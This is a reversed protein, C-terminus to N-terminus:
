RKIMVTGTWVNQGGKMNPANLKVLYYYTGDPLKGSKGNGGWDNKYNTKEYVMDGWKDFVQVTNNPYVGLGEIVWTDNFGDGNPTVVDHIIISNCTDENVTASYSKTCGNSDSVTVSYTGSVLGTIEKGTKNNSWLYTYPANGGTVTASISGTGADCLDNKTIATIQLSDPQKIHFYLVELCQTIEAKISVTDYGPPLGTITAGSVGNNWLYQYVQTGTTSLHISGDDRGYCSVPTVISDVTFTGQFTVTVTFTAISTCGGSNPGTTYTIVSVGAVFARVQGANDISLVTLNNNSWTGGPTADSLMFVADPCASDQGTIPSIPQSPLVTINKTATDNGCSNAVYYVIHATGATVGTVIGSSTITAVGPTYSSWAGGAVTDSLTTTHGACIVTDGTINGADPTLTIAIVTTVTATGCSTTAAYSITDTGVSAGTVIGGGSISASSNSSSWVGGSVSDSLTITLGICVSPPGTIAGINPQRIAIYISDTATCVPHFSIDDIALDNGNAVLSLDTMCISASTTTGSNWTVQYQTWQGRTTTTSFTGINIGNIILQITPLPADLLARWLSFVYNTGPTVAVTECWFSMGATTSADIIMMNGTGTTHDGMVPWTTNYLHPNTGVAYEGTTVAGYGYTTSFGTNGASFDGNVILNTLNLSNVTLYYWGPSTGVTLAPNLLTSSSLGTSPTWAVSLISDTGIVIAHLTDTGHACIHLSDPLSISDCSGMTCSSVTITATAIGACVNYTITVTGAAIGTVVGSSSGVTAVSTNSSTWIGGPAADSLTIPTLSCVTDGGTIAATGTITITGSAATSGTPTFATSWTFPVTTSYAVLNAGVAAAFGDVLITKGVTATAPITATIFFYNVAVTTYPVAIFAAPAVHTGAGLGTTLTAGLQTAGVITNTSNIWVQFNTIDTGSVATGSTTFSWNTIGDGTTGATGTFSYIVVTTSGQCITTATTPTGSSLVLSRAAYSQTGLCCLVLLCYIIRM